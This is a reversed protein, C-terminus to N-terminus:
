MLGPPPIGYESFTQYYRKYEKEYELLYDFWMDKMEMKEEKSINMNNIERRAIGALKRELRRGEPSFKMKPVYENNTNFNYNM